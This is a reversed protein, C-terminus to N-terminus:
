RRSPRQRCTVVRLPRRQCFIARGRVSKGETTWWKLSPEMAKVTEPEIYIWALNLAESAKAAKSVIDYVEEVIADLTKVAAPPMTTGWFTYHLMLLLELARPDTSKSRQDGPTQSLRDLAVLIVLDRALVTPHIDVQSTRRLGWRPKTVHLVCWAFIFRSQRPRRWVSSATSTWALTLWVPMFIDLMPSAAFFPQFTSLPGMGPFTCTSASLTRISKARQTSKLTATSSESSQTPRM